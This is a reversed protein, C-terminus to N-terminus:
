RIPTSTGLYHEVVSGRLCSNIFLIKDKNKLPIHHLIKHMNKKGVYIQHYIHGNYHWPCSHYPLDLDKFVKICFDALNQSSTSLGFGGGKKGGDTDLLGALLYPYFKEPISPVKAIKAKRGCIYGKEQLFTSLTISEIMIKWLPKKKNKDLVIHPTLNFLSQFLPVYVEQIFPMSNSTFHIVHRRQITGNPKKCLSDPLSGDGLLLGFFYAFEPTWTQPLTPNHKM